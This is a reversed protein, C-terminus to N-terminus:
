SSDYISVGIKKVKQDTRLGELWNILYGSTDNKFDKSDHIMITDISKRNLKKLSINFNKELLDIKTENIYASDIKKVKNIIRFFKDKKLVDGIIAESEGYAQATDLYQVELNKAFIMIKKIEEIAIRGSKNTIGYDLGFQATGICLKKILKEFM